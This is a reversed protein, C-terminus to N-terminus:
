RPSQRRKEPVPSSKMGLTLLRLDDPVELALVEIDQDEHVPVEGIKRLRKEALQDQVVVEGIGVQVPERIQGDHPALGSSSPVIFYRVHAAMDISARRKGRPVDSM